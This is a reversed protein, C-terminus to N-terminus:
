LENIEALKIMIKEMKKRMARASCNHNNVIIAFAVNKKNKTKVYGAYSKVRTMTGSKAMVRGSAATGKGVNRLTGSKGAVPLSRLFTKYNKSKYMIELIGVLQKATIANFRSLGSGDNVYLGDVDLGKAEWFKQVAVTGSGTDGHRYKYVGIQNILHEAYLNISYMNTADVITSLSPSRTTMVVHKKEKLITQEEYKIKRLTTSPNGLKVGMQRLEMDLEFAALYAPDPISGRVEFEDQDVPIGGKITRDDQYPAGYIYSEDKSTTMSKVYNDFALNPVYPNVCSIYTSDGRKGSELTLRCTNEYISLGCAGAGYYNGLDGWIWTPPIMQETFITADAIVRGNISDIGLNKIALAWKKIFDGYHRKYRHSGLCPDGGGVIYVNGNLVCNTDIEGSYKIITSFRKGSGMMELATATTVIKMTSAPVLSRSSSIGSIIRNSDLDFAYFSISANKLDKDDIMNKIALRVAKITQSQANFVGVCLLISFLLRM